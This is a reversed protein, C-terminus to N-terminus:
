KRRTAGAPQTPRIGTPLREPRSCYRRTKTRVLNLDELPATVAAGIKAGAEPNPATSRTACGPLLCAFLLLYAPAKMGNTFVSGSGSDNM